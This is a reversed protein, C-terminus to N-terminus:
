RLPGGVRRPTADATPPKRRSVSPPPVRPTSVAAALAGLVRDGEARAYALALRLACTVRARSTCAYTVTAMHAVLM